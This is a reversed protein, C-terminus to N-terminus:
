GFFGYTNTIPDKFFPIKPTVFTLVAFLVAIIVLTMIAKDDKKCEVKNSKFMRTEAYYVVAVSLFFIAINVWDPTQGFVGNITYYLVPILVIGLMIGNKKICWFNEYGKGIYKNEIIAFVLMPFFLLKTHEFISENVASFPSVIISQNTWDFLFHLLVGAISTFIFGYRQWVSM